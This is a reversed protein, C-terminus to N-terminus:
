PEIIQATLNISLSDLVDQHQTHTIAPGQLDSAPPKTPENSCGTFGVMIITSILCFYYLKNLM